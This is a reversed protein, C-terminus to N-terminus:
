ASYWTEHLHLWTNRNSDLSNRFIVTSIRATEETGFQWEEYTMICTEKSELRTRIHRIEIVFNEAEVGHASWFDSSIESRTQLNGDPHIIVFDEDLEDEFYQFVATSKEVVGKLWSEIFVHLEKINKRCAMEM